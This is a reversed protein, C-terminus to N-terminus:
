RRLRKAASTSLDRYGRFCFMIEARVDPTDLADLRNTLRESFPRGTPIKCAELWLVRRCGRMHWTYGFFLTETAHHLSQTAEVAVTTRSTRTAAATQSPQSRELQESRSLNM